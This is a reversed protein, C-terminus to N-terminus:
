VNVSVPCYQPFSFQLTAGNISYTGVYVYRNQIQQMDCSVLTATAAKAEGPAGLVALLVSVITALATLAKRITFLNM